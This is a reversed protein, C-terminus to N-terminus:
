PQTITHANENAPSHNGPAVPQSVETGSQGPVVKPRTTAAAGATRSPDTQALKAKKAQEALAKKEDESLQQYTEWQAQLEDKPVKKVLKYNERALKRQEPTLQAWEKMRAHMRAQEGEPMNPYRNAIEVWKKRRLEPMEMWTEALPALIARQNSTLDVWKPGADAPANKLAGSVNHQRQLTPDPKAVAASPGERFSKYALTGATAAVAVVLLIKFTKM